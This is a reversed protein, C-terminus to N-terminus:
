AAPNKETEQESEEVDRLVRVAIRRMTAVDLNAVLQAPPIASQVANIKALENLFLATARPDGKMAGKTIQHVVIQLKSVSKARGGESVAVKKLSEKLLLAAISVSGKPRGKPNGSAGPKFRSHKPPRRPGVVYNEDSDEKDEKSDKGAM